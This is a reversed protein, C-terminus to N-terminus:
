KKCILNLAAWIGASLASEYTKWCVSAEDNGKEDYLILTTGRTANDGANSVDWMYGCACNYVLVDIKKEYRLWKAAQWLTPSSINFWEYHNYDDERYGDRLRWGDEGEYVHAYVSTVKEDFGNEKLLKALEFSVYDETKM